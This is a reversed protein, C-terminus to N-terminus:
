TVLKIIVRHKINEILMWINSTISSVLSTARHSRCGLNSTAANDASRASGSWSSFVFAQVTQFRESNERRSLLWWPVLWLLIFLFQVSCPLLISRDRQSTLRKEVSIIGFGASRPHVQTRSHETRIASRDACRCRPQSKRGSGFHGQKTKSLALLM